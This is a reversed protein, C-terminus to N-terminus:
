FYFFCFLFVMQAEKQTTPTSWAATNTVSAVLSEYFWQITYTHRYVPTPIDLGLDYKFNDWLFALSVSILKAQNEISAIDNFKPFTMDNLITAHKNKDNLLLKFYTDNHMIKEKYMVLTLFLDEFVQLETENIQLYNGNKMNESTEQITQQLITPGYDENILLKMAITKPNSLIVHDSMPPYMISPAKTTLSFVDTESTHCQYETIFNLRADNMKSGTAFMSALVQLVTSFFYNLIISDTLRQLEWNTLKERVVESLIEWIATVICCVFWFFFFFVCFVFFWLFFAFDFIPLVFYCGLFNCGLLNGGFFQLGFFQLGIFQWWFIAVWFIAVWFGLNASGLFQLCLISLLFFHCGCYQLLFNSLRCFM